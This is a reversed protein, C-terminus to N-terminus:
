IINLYFISIFLYKKHDNNKDSMSEIMIFLMELISLIHLIQKGVIIDKNKIINTYYFKLGVLEQEM